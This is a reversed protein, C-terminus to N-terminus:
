RQPPRMAIHTHAEPHPTQWPIAVTGLSGADPEAHRRRAVLERRLSRRPAQWIDRAVNDVQERLIEHTAWAARRCEPNRPSEHRIGATEIDVYTSLGM